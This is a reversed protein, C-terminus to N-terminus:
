RSSRCRLSFLWLNTLVRVQVQNTVVHIGAELIEQMRATDFNCLGLLRVREDNQLLRLAEIYQPDDYQNITLEHQESCGPDFGCIALSVTLSRNGNLENSPM